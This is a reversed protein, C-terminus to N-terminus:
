AAEGAALLAQAQEIWEGNEIYGHMSNLPHNPEAIEALDLAAVHGVSIVGNVRLEEAFAPGIGDIRELDAEIVDEAEGRVQEAVEEAEDVAQEAAEHMQQMPTQAVGALTQSTDRVAESLLNIRARAAHDLKRMYEASFQWNAQLFEAPSRVNALAQAHGAGTNALDQAQNVWSRALGTNLEQNISWLKQSTANMQQMMNSQAQM